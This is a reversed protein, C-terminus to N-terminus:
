ESADAVIWVAAGASVILFCAILVYALPEATNEASRYLIVMAALGAAIILAIGVAIKTGIPWAVASRIFGHFM